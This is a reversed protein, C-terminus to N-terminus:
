NLLTRKAVDYEEDTILGQEKKKELERMEDSNINKLLTPNQNDSPEKSVIPTPSPQDKLEAPTPPPATPESNIPPVITSVTYTGEYYTGQTGTTKRECNFFGRGGVLVGSVQSTTDTVVELNLGSDSQIGRLCEALSTFNSGRTENEFQQNDCGIVTLTICAAYLASSIQGNCASKVNM